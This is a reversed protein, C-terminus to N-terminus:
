ANLIIKDGSVSIDGAPVYLTSGILNYSGVGPMRSTYWTRGSIVSEDTCAWGHLKVRGFVREACFAFGQFSSSEVFSVQASLISTQADPAASAIVKGTGDVIGCCWAAGASKNVTQSCSFQATVTQNEADIVFSNVACVGDARIVNEMQALSWTHNELSASFLKAVANHRLMKRDSIGLFSFFVRAIGASFRNLRVFASFSKKQASNHPAHSFPISKICATGKWNAGYVAGVKGDFRASLLNMTGM